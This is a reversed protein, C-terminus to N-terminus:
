PSSWSFHAHSPSSPTELLDLGATRSLGIPSGNPSKVFAAPALNSPHEILSAGETGDEKQAPQRSIAM